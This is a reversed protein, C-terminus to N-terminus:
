AAGRRRGRRLRGLVAAQLGPELRGLVVLAVVWASGVTAAGCLLARVGAHFTSASPVAPVAALLVVAVVGAAGAVPVVPLLADRVYRGLPIGLYRCVVVPLVTFDIVLVVPLSGIAPGIPGLWYTALISGALNVAASFLALRVLIQNRGIGTLYTFCQHGPLQLATVLGLAIMIPYTKPPVTGLWLRLIDQGFAALAILIPLAIALGALVSRRFLRAQRVPDETTSLHAYTPMLLNTGQTTLNRTLNSTSLAVDYPAVQAVPLIIGIIVTDLAYSVTGGVAVVINRGGFRLLDILIARDFRGGRLTGKGMRRVVALSVLYGFIAAAATVAGLGVLGGGALVVLVQAAQTVVLVSLGIQAQRDSRGSGFLVAEPVSALFRTAMMVGLLILTAGAVTTSVEGVNVISAVFPAVVVVVAVALFGSVTFFTSATRLLDALGQADGIATLRAVRQVAATSVGADLLGLYGVMNILVIWLGFGGAGLHRLLVRTVLLGLVLGLILNAYSSAANLAFQRRSVNAPEPAPDPEAGETM